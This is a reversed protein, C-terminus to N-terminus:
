FNYGLTISARNEHFSINETDKILNVLGADGSIGIYFKKINVGAGFGWSFNVRKMEGEDGYLNESIEIKDSKLYGKSKFGIELEPGTFVSVSIDDTCDFRYGIMVPIRMGFKRIDMSNIYLEDFADVSNLDKLYDDTASYTNYFFKLGPEIFLNSVVPINCIAGLEIGGGNKYIKEGIKTGSINATMKGPCVIDGSLRVGFYVRNNPNNFVTGEAACTLITAATLASTLLFKKM